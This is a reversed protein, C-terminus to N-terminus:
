EALAWVSLPYALALSLLIGGFIDSPYHHATAIRAWAMALLLLGASLACGPCALVIPVLAGSLTMAHGSPFSFEDIARFPPSLTPDFKFPRPRRVFRKIWPYLCHLLGVNVGALLIVRKERDGLCEFVFIGLLPYLWGDGLRSVMVASRRGAATRTSRAIFHVAALDARFLRNQWPEWWEALWPTLWSLLFPLGTRRPARRRRSPSAGAGDMQPEDRESMERQTKERQADDRRRANEGSNLDTVDIM